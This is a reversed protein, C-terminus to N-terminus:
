SPRANEEKAFYYRLAEYVDDPLENLVRKVGFENIADNFDSITSYLWEYEETM